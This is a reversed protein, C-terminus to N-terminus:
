RSLDRPPACAPMENDGAFTELRETVPVGEVAPEYFPLNEGTERLDDAYARRAEVYDRYDAEWQPVVARGKDGTPAVAVVDDLAAEIIDTARDIIDAREQILDADDEITRYDSLELRAENADECIEEARAAWSRDDIKNVAEKSAFFLAWIWFAAFVAVVVTLLARVALGRADNSAPPDTSRARDTDATPM